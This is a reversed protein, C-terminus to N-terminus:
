YSGPAPSKGRNSHAHAGAVKISFLLFVSGLSSGLQVLGRRTNAYVWCSSTKDVARDIQSDMHQSVLEMLSDRIIDRILSLESVTAQPGVQGM